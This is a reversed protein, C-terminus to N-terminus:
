KTLRGARLPQQGCIFVLHAPGSDEAWSLLFLGSGVEPDSPDAPDDGTGATRGGRGEGTLATHTDPQTHTHTHTDTQKHAM